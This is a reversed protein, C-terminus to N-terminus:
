RVASVGRICAATPKRAPTGTLSASQWISLELRM